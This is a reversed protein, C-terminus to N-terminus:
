TDIVYRSVYYQAFLAFAVSPHVNSSVNRPIGAKAEVWGNQYLKKM